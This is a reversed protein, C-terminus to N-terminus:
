IISQVQAASWLALVLDVGNRSGELGSGGLQHVQSVVVKTLKLRKRLSAVFELDKGDGMCHVGHMLMVGAFEGLCHLLSCPRLVEGRSKFM